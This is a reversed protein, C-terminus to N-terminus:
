RVLAFAEDPSMASAVETSLYLHGLTQDAAPMEKAQASKFLTEAAASDAAVGEGSRLRWGYEIEGWGVGM